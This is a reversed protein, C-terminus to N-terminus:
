AGNSPQTSSGYQENRQGLRTQQVTPAVSPARAPPEVQADTATREIWSRLPDESLNLALAGATFGGWFAVPEKLARKLIPDSVNDAMRSLLASAPRSSLNPRQRFTSRRLASAFHLQGATLGSEHSRILM